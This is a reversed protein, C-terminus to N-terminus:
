ASKPRKGKLAAHHEDNAPVIYTIEKVGLSRGGLSAFNRGDVLQVYVAGAHAIPQIELVDSPPANDAPMIAVHDGPKLASLFLM